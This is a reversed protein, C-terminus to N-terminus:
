QVKKLTLVAEDTPLTVQGPSAEQRTQVEIIDGANLSLLRQLSSSSESHDGLNRVYFGKAPVPDAVGNIVFQAILNPRQEPSTIGISFYAEYIGSQLVQVGQATSQFILPHSNLEEFDFDVIVPLSSNLNQGAGTYRKGYVPTPSAASAQALIDWKGPTSVPNEGPVTLTTCIYSSGSFQVAENADYVTGASWVGRWSLDGDAGREGRPGVLADLTQEVTIEASVRTDDSTSGGRIIFNIVDGEALPVDLPDSLGMSSFTHSAVDLGNIQFVVVLGAVTGDCALALRTLRSNQPIVLGNAATDGNGFAFTTGNSVGANREAWILYSYSLTTPTLNARVYELAAEQSPIDKAEDFASLPINAAYSLPARQIVDM